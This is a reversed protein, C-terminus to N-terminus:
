PARAAGANDLLAMDLGTRIVVQMAQRAAEPERKAIADAIRRHQQVSEVLRVPDQTPSSIRLLAVLAVEILTSISLMFPNAAAAAVALHLQLDAHVFDELTAGPAGMKEVYAYIQEVDAATRREAALAAAHPELAMRMESLHVLFAEDFGNTAHWILVDADFLNWDNRDRVRTGIRAKAQILGKGALTKMAERLVTRSVGFQSMLEADGPLIANQAYRGSVIALGIERMVHATHSRIPGSAAYDHQTTTDALRIGARPSILM